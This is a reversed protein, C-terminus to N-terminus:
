KIEEVKYVFYDSDGKTPNRFKVQKYFLKVKKDHDIAKQIKSATSDDIVSFQFASGSIASSADTQRQFAGMNLEGETTKFVWGKNLSIKTVYGVREGESYVFCGGTNGFFSVATCVITVVLSIALIYLLIKAFKSPTIISM